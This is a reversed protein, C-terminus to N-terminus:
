LYNLVKGRETVKMCQVSDFKQWCSKEGLTKKKTQKNRQTNKKGQM